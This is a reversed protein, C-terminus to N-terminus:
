HKKSEPLSSEERISVEAGVDSEESVPPLLLLSSGLEALLQYAEDM